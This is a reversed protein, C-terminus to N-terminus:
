LSETRWPTTHYTVLKSYKNGKIKKASIDTEFYTSTNTEKEHSIGEM